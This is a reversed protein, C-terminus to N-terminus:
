HDRAGGERTREAQQQAQQSERSQPQSLDGRHPDQASDKAPREAKDAAHETGNETHNASKGNYTTVNPSWGDDCTTYGFGQYSSSCAKRHSDNSKGKM